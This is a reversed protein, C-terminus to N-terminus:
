VAELELNHTMSTGCPVWKASCKEGEKNRGRMKENKERKKLLEAADHGTVTVWTLWGGVAENLERVMLWFWVTRM